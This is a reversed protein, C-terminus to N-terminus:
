RWASSRGSGARLPVRRRLRRQRPAPPLHLGPDPSRDRPHMEMPRAARDGPLHGPLRRRPRARHRARAPPARAGRIKEPDRGPAFLTTGGRSGLDAALVHWGDLEIRLHRRSLYTSDHPLRVLHPWDGPGSPAPRRGLVVPRDLPVVARRRAAPAGRAAPAAGAGAGAAPVPGGCSAACRAVLPDTLHGRPCRVALVTDSTSQELHGSPGPRGARHRPTAGGPANTTTPTRAATPMSTSASTPAAAGRLPPSPRCADRAACRGPHQRPDGGPHRRHRPRGRGPSAAPRYWAPSRSRRRSGGRGGRAATAGVRADLGGAGLGLPRRHRECPARSARTM